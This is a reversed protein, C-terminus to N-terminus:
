RGHHGGGGAGERADIVAADNEFDADYITPGVVQTNPTVAQTANNNNGACGMLAILSLLPLSIRTFLKM